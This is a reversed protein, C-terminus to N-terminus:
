RIKVRVSPPVITRYWLVLVGQLLDPAEIAAQVPLLNFRAQPVEASIHVFSGTRRHGEHNLLALQRYVPRVRASLAPGAEDLANSAIQNLEAV